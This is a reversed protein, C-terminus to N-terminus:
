TPRHLVILEHGYWLRNHTQAKALALGLDNAWQRVNEIPRYHIWQRALTLDHLRNAAARWIPRKCMDKYILTGGPPLRAAVDKFFGAQANPPIHHMVDIISIVDFAGEPIGDTVSRQEFTLPLSHTEAVRSALQIMGGNTDFGQGTNIRGSAALLSLMLGGGCGVDLVRSGKPVLPLLEEFPCITPRYTM